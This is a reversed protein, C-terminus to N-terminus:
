PTYVRWTHLIKGPWSASDRVRLVGLAPPGLLIDASHGVYEVPGIWWEGEDGADKNPPKSCGECDRAFWMAFGGLREFVARGGQTRLSKKYQGQVSAALGKYDDTGLGLLLVAKCDGDVVEGKVKVRQDYTWKLEERLVAQLRDHRAKAQWSHGGCSLKLWTSAPLTCRVCVDNPSFM